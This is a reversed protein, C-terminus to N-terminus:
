NLQIDGHGKYLCSDNKTFMYYVRVMEGSNDVLGQVDLAINNGVISDASILVEWNKNIVRINFYTHTEKQYNLHFIGSNSNPFAPHMVITSDQLFYNISDSYEFLDFEQGVWDSTFTWDSNDVLGNLNGNNDTATYGSIIPTSSNSSPNSNKDKCSGSLLIYVSCLAIFILNRLKM